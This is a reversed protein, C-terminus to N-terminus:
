KVSAGCTAVYYATRVDRPMCRWTCYVTMVKLSYVVHGCPRQIIACMSVSAASVLTYRRISIPIVPHRAAASKAAAIASKGQLKYVTIVAPCHLQGCRACFAATLGCRYRAHCAVLLASFLMGPLFLHGSLPSSLLGHIFVPALWIDALMAAIWSDNAFVVAAVLGSLRVYRARDCIYRPM